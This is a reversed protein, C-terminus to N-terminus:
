AFVRVNTVRLLRLFRLLDEPPVCSIALLVRLIHLLAPGVADATAQIRSLRREKLM